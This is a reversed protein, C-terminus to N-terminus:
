IARTTAFSYGDANLRAAVILLLMIGAVQVNPMTVRLVLLWAGVFFACSGIVTWQTVDDNLM